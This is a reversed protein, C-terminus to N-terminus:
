PKAGTTSKAILALLIQNASLLAYDDILENMAEADAGSAGEQGLHGLLSAERTRSLSQVNSLEALPVPVDPTIGQAQISRGNPTYYRATTLKLGDGNALPLISQVSGKGFSRQGVVVARGHDQLAGAVIESASASGGDILVVIPAADLVDGPTADFSMRAVAIRGKTRVITGRELFADVVGTAAQLLGGPNSRLDLILGKIPQEKKMKALASTLSSATDLQFTSLRAYAIGPQLWRPRVSSVKIVERKMQVDFPSVGLRLITLEIKSGPAGRLLEVAGNLASGELPAGDIRLIVDGTQLGARQAPGGDMPAVVKLRDGDIEVEIGLGGYAGSTEENLSNFADAAFYASHPDLDSLLGRIAKEMLERESIPEVFSRQVERFLMAFRRLEEMTVEDSPAPEVVQPEAAFLLVPFVLSALVSYIAKM